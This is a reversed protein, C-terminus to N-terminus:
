PRAPAAPAPSLTPPHGPIGLLRHIESASQAVAQLLRLDPGSPTRAARNARRALRLWATDVERFEFALQAPTLSPRAADKRFDAAAANLREADAVLAGASPSPRVAQVFAATEENLKDALVSIPSPAGVPVPALATGNVDEAVLPIGLAKRVLVEVSRYAQWASRVQPTIAMRGLSKELRDSISDIGAFGNREAEDVRGEIDLGDHYIDAAQALHVADEIAQDAGPGDLDARCAVALAESRDVLAHVLRQLDMMGSPAASATYYSPPSANLGLLQHVRADSAVVQQAAQTIAPTATGPQLLDAALSHWTSDVRAFDRRLEYPDRDLKTFRFEDLTAGIEAADEVLYRERPTDGADSRIQEALARVQDAMQILTQQLAARDIEPAQARSGAPVTALCLAVAFGLGIRRVIPKM